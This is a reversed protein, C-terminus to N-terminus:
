EISFGKLPNNLLLKSVTKQDDKCSQKIIKTITKFSSCTYSISFTRSSHLGLPIFTHQQQLYPWLWALSGLSLCLCFHHRGLRRGKLSRPFYCFRGKQDTHLHQYHTCIIGMMIKVEAQQTWLRFVTGRWLGSRSLTTLGATKIMQIGYVGNDQKDEHLLETKKKLEM